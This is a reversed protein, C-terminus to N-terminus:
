HIKGNTKRRSSEVDIMSCQSDCYHTGQRCTCHWAPGCIGDYWKPKCGNKKATKYVLKVLPHNQNM